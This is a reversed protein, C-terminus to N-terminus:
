TEETRKNLVLFAGMPNVFWFCQLKKIMMGCAQMWKFSRVKLLYIMSDLSTQKQEFVLENRALWLTWLAAAMVLSWVQSLKAGAFIKRSTWHETSM